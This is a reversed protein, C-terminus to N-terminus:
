PRASVTLIQRLAEVPTAAIGLPDAAELEGPSAFGWAAGITRIANERAGLIDLDRDGVMLCSRPDLRNTEVTHAIVEGKRTRTGDLESGNLSAFIELLRFHGLIDRAFVLPKSTALHLRLGHARLGALLQPVGPYLRNVRLRDVGYRERYHEVAKAVSEPTPDPLLRRFTDQIPPGIAWLLSTGPSPVGMSRLAHEIGGVVGESPDSLTGDLDLLIDTPPTANM